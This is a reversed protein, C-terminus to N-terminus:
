AFEEVFTRAAVFNFLFKSRSNALTEQRLLEEILPRRVHDYIPGPALLWDRVQPDAFDVLSRISANFGVKRRAWLVHPYAPYTSKGAEPLPHETM